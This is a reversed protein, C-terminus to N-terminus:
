LVSSSFFPAGGGCFRVLLSKWIEMLTLRGVAAPATLPYESILADGAWLQVSGLVQGQEVPAAVSDPLSFRVEVEGARGKEMVASPMERCVPVISSVQGLEVPLAPLATLEPTVLTYNSFAYDLLTRAADFRLQSSEGHLVVAIFEMGDRKASAALCFMAKSTFGTKLGTCGPYYRVLKNTNTLGFEGGRITDTWLCTFQRVFDHSLLERAMVAVDFASTYHDSDEFLGTCNTFHTDALGLAAARENMRSVFSEESGCLREAMAVACDNASVVAICKTMEAVTM